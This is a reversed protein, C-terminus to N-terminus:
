NNRLQHSIVKLIIKGWICLTWWFRVQLVLVRNMKRSEIINWIRRLFSRIIATLVNFMLLWSFDNCEFIPLYKIYDGVIVASSFIIKVARPTKVKLCCLVLGTNLTWLLIGGDTDHKDSPETEFDRLRGEQTPNRATKEFTCACFIGM